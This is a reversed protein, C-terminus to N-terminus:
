RSVPDQAFTNHKSSLIRKGAIGSNDVGPEDTHIIEKHGGQNGFSLGVDEKRVLELGKKVQHYLSGHGYM